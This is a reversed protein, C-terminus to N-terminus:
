GRVCSEQPQSILTYETRHDIMLIQKGARNVDALGPPPHPHRSANELLSEDARQQIPESSPTPLARGSFRNPRNRLFEQQMVNLQASEPGFGPPMQPTTAAPTQAQATNRVSGPEVSANHSNSASPYSGFGFSASSFARTEEWSMDLFGRMRFNSPDQGQAPPQQVGGFPQWSTLPSYTNPVWQPINHPSTYSPRTPANTNPAQYWASSDHVPDYPQTDRHLPVFTNATSSLQPQHQQCQYRHAASPQQHPHSHSHGDDMTYDMPDM